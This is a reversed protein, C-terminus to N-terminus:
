VSENQSEAEGEPSKGDSATNEEGRDGMQVGDGEARPEYKWGGRVDCAESM